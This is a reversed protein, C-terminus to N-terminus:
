EQAREHFFIKFDDSELFSKLSELKKKNGEESHKMSYFETSKCVRRVHSSIGNGYQQRKSIKNMRENWEKSGVHAPGVGGLVYYKKPRTLQYDELSYPKFLNHQNNSYFSSVKDKKIITPPSKLPRLDSPLRVGARKNSLRIQNHSDVVSNAISRYAPSHIQSNSPKSIARESNIKLEGHKNLIATKTKFREHFSM